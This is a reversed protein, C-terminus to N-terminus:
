WVLVTLNHMFDFSMGVFFVFFIITLVQSPPYAYSIFLLISITIMNLLFSTFFGIRYAIPNGEVQKFDGAIATFLLACLRFSSALLVLIFVNGISTFLVFGLMLSILFPLLDGIVTSRTRRRCGEPSCRLKGL